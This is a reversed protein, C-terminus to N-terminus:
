LSLIDVENLTKIKGTKLWEDFTSYVHSDDIVWLMDEDARNREKKIFPYLKLYERRDYSRITFLSRSVPIIACKGVNGDVFGLEWPIWKSLESNTSVALFLSKCSTMRTRILEASQKTINNRDLQPDVIWDVYVSYGLNMLEIYLGEVEDKDLFSHSLFIDYGRNVQSRSESFMLTKANPTKNESLGKLYRSSYLAM